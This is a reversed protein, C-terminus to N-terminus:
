LFFLDITTCLEILDVSRPRCTNMHAHYVYARLRHVVSGSAGREASSLYLKKRCFRNLSARFQLMTSASPICLNANPCMQLLTGRIVRQQLICPASSLTWETRSRDVAASRAWVDSTHSVVSSNNHFAAHFAYTLPQVGMGFVNKKFKLPLVGPLYSDFYNKLPYFM